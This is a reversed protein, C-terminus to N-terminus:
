SKTLPLYFCLGALTQAPSNFGALQRAERQREGAFVIHVFEAGEMFRLLSEAPKPTRGGSRRKQVTAPPIPVLLGERKGPGFRRLKL